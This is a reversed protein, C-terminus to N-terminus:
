GVERAKGFRNNGTLPENRTEDGFVAVPEYRIEVPKGRIGQFPAMM